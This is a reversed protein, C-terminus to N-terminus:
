NAEDDASELVFHYIPQKQDLMFIDYGDALAKQYNVYHEAVTRAAMVIADAWAQDGPQFLSYNVLHCPRHQDLLLLRSKM